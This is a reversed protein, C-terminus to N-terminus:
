GLLMRKINQVLDNIILQSVNFDGSRPLPKLSEGQPGGNRAVPIIAGPIIKVTAPNLFVM